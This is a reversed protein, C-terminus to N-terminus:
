LEITIFVCNFNVLINNQLIFLCLCVHRENPIVKPWAKCDLMLFNDDNLFMIKFTWFIEEAMKLTYHLSPVFDILM